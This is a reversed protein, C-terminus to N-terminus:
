RHGSLSLPVSLDLRTGAGVHSTFRLHGGLLAARERMSLLGMGGKRQTAPTFGRGDDIVCARLEDPAVTIRVLVQRADAHNITNRLAERLILFVEETTDPSAWQVDGNVEIHAIMEGPSQAELFKRLGKELGELPEVLRLDTIIERVSEITEDLGARARQMRVAARPPDSERYQEYLELNRQAVGIGNAIRDHLERSIRRREELHAQHVHNLLVDAYSDGAERLVDTLVRQLALAVLVIQNPSFREPSRDVATRIIAGFLANSARLSEGPYVRSTARTV